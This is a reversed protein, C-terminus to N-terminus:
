TSFIWSLIFSQSLRPRAAYKTSCNRTAFTFKFAMIVFSDKSILALTPDPEVNEAPDGLPSMCHSSM